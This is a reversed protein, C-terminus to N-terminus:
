LTRGGNVYTTFTDYDRIYDAEDYYESALVLLVADASFGYMECWVGPGVYLGANPDELVVHDRQGLGNDLMVSCKGHVCILYQQLRKHAHFGRREEPHVGYIYYIRKIAFPVDREGELFTLTGRSDHKQHFNKTKIDM